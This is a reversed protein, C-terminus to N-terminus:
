DENYLKRVENLSDITGVDYCNGEFVYAHVPTKKHLYELLSGSNDPKNGEELYKKIYFLTKEPYLYTAYAAIDSEPNSPKEWFDVIRNQNDLKVVGFSKLLEKNEIQKCTVIPTKVQNYYNIVDKLQYDFLNDGAIILLDDDIKRNDITFNIDGIAGLRDENNNTHDNIAIIPKVNDKSNAWKEFHSYYRNNSVVYIEDIEDITNVEELIYDLLPKGKEIELLAKPFNETLPFLRTAYGGCLLICKM